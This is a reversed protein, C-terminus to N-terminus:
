QVGGLLKGFFREELMLCLTHYIPLHFEQIKYTETEPVIVAIDALEKLKGGTGGTLAIVKLGKAKAVTAAYLINESNGSTSIGLFTDHENGYGYVQQAIGLLPNVDNLYATSLALHDVVAIAPLAGQLKDGIWRGKESDIDELAQVMKEDITRSNKFSKMLEGVIHEADAASGGNGAVLLKGKNAYTEELAYYTDAIQTEISQLLPYRDILEELLKKVEPIM